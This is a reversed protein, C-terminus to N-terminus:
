RWHHTDQEVKNTAQKSSTQAVIPTTTTIQQSAAGPWWGAGDLFPAPTSSAQAPKCNEDALGTAGGGEGVMMGDRKGGTAASASSLIRKRDRVSLVWSPSCRQVGEKPAHYQANSPTCAQSGPKHCSPAPCCLGGASGPTPQWGRFVTCVTVVGELGVCEAPPHACGIGLLLDADAHM